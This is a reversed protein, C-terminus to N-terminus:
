AFFTDNQYTSRFAKPPLGMRNKFFRILNNPESFNLQYTIESITKTSYLLESKIEFLLREKIMESATIGFQKKVVTNLSIRSIGLIQAYEAVQQKEIYNKELAEKFQYAQNNLHTDNELQNYYCFARNMKILFYYLMSRLLHESDKQYNHLENFIEKFIKNELTFLHSKSIFYTPIRRNYFYQLRYIFLQDSFFDNLFDKEFILFYGKLEEQEVQWKRKQFPSIFVVTGRNIEIKENDLLLHGNGEYFMIIEFFNTRHAEPKFFFNPTEEIIGLDMKLPFGYKNEFFDFTKM